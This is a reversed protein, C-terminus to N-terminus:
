SKKTANSTDIESYRFKDQVFSSTKFNQSSKLSQESEKKSLGKM